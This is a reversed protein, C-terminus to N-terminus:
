PNCTIDQSDNIKNVTAHKNEMDLAPKLRSQRTM